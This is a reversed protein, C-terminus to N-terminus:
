KRGMGFIGGGMVALANGIAGGTGSNATGIAIDALNQGQGTYISALSNGMNQSVGAQASAANAGLSQQNGLAGLWQGFGQQAVGQGYKLASKAASGSKLLGNAAFGSNLANMGQDFQFKYGTSNLYTDLASQPNVPAGGMGTTVQTGDPNFTGGGYGTVTGPMGWGGGMDGSANPTLYSYDETMGGRGNFQYGPYPQYGADNAPMLANYTQPQQQYSQAPQSPSLGLASNILANAQLGQSQWPALANASDQYNSRIVEASKDAAQTTAAAATKAANKQANAGAIGSVATGAGAIGLGIAALTGIAM